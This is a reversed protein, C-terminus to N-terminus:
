KNELFEVRSKLEKVASVLPSIFQDYRLAYQGNEDIVLGWFDVGGLADEVEQAIFGFHNRSGPKSTIVEKQEKVLKKVMKPVQVKRPIKEIKTKVKQMKRPMQVMEVIEEDEGDENQIIKKTPIFDFIQNGNEDYIDLYEIVPVKNKVVEIKIIAKGDVIETKEVETEIEEFEEVEKEDFIQNGNEDFLDVENFVKEERTKKEIIKIFKGDKEEIKEETYEIIKTEQVEKEVEIEEYNVENWGSIWKYSVPNLKSIFDLWLETEQIDTKQRRDSTQITGNSAWIASWRNWARGCVYANDVKAIFDQKSANYWGWWNIQFLENSSSDLFTFGTNANVLKLNAWSSPFISMEAFNLNWSPTIEFRTNNAWSTAIKFYNNTWELAIKYWWDDSYVTSDWPNLIWYSWEVSWWKRMQMSKGVDNNAVFAGNNNQISINWVVELKNTPNDTWIWVKWTSLLTMLDTDNPRFNIKAWNWSTIEVTNKRFDQSWTPSFFSLSWINTAWEKWRIWNYSWAWFPLQIEGNFNKTWDITQNGTLKVVANDNAKNALGEDVYKKTTAEMDTTPTPVVPSSSFTKVWDVTQNGTLQVFLWTAWDYIAKVSPYKTNSSWDTTINTSKNSVDEKWWITWIATKETDTVFNEDTWLSFNIIPNNPDTNDISINSWWVVTQLQWQLNTWNGWVWWTKPWFIQWSTTNIYFDGDVWETTPDVTWNLVSEWKDWKVWFWRVCVNWNSDLVFKLKELDNIGLKKFEEQTISM